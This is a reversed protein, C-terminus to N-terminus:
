QKQEQNRTVPSTARVVHYEISSERYEIIFKLQNLNEDLM